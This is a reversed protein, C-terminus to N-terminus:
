RTTTSTNMKRTALPLYITAAVPCALMGHHTIDDYDYTGDHVDRYTDFTVTIGDVHVMVFTSPAGTDGAGRAHGVDVQWVGDIKVTSYNHTHGCFYAVVHKASLLSWFRDRRVPYADLSDGVHRLRGNDVDPKPFAPEHGFVFVTAKGTHFLDQVLWDYVHDSVDGDRVDDGSLDCYENLVV